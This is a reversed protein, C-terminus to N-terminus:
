FNTGLLWVSGLNCLFCTGGISENNDVQIYVCGAPRERGPPTKNRTPWAPPAEENMM